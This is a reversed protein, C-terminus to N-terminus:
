NIYKVDDPCANRSLLHRQELKDIVYTM